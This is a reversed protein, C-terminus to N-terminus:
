RPSPEGSAASVIVTLGYRPYPDRRGASSRAACVPRPTKTRANVELGSPGTTCRARVSAVDLPSPAPVDVPFAAPVDVAFAAPVTAPDITAPTVASLSAARDRPWSPLTPMTTPAVTPSATSRRPNSRAAAFAGRKAGPTPACPVM